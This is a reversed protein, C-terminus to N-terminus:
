MLKKMTKEDNIMSSVFYKTYKAHMWINTFLGNFVGNRKSLTKEKKYKKLYKKVQPEDKFVYFIHNKVVDYTLCKKDRLYMNIDSNINYKKYLTQHLTLYSKRINM